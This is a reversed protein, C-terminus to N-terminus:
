LLTSHKKLQTDLVTGTLNCTRERMPQKVKINFMQQFM